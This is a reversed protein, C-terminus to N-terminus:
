FPYFRSGQVGLSPLDDVYEIVGKSTYQRTIRARRKKAVGWRLVVIEETIPVGVVDAGLRAALEANGFRFEVM